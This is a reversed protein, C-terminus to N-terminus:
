NIQNKDTKLYQLMLAVIRGNPLDIEIQARKLKNGDYTEDFWKLLEKISGIESIKKM